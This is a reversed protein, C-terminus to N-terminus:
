GGASAAQKYRWAVIPEGSANSGIEGVELEVADGKRVQIHDVDKEALQTFIRPGEDLDVFALVYPAEIGQVATRVVTYSFVSGRRGMKVREECAVFCSPCVKKPPFFSQNCEPCRTGLLSAQEGGARGESIWGKKIFDM